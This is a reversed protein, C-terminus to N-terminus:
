KHQYSLHDYFLLFLHKGHKEKEGMSVCETINEREREREREKEGRPVVCVCVCVCVNVCMCM